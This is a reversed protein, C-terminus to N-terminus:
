NSGQYGNPQLTVGGSEKTYRHPPVQLHSLVGQGKFVRGSGDFFVNTCPDVFGIKWNRPLKMKKAQESLVLQVVCGTTPSVMNFVFFEAQASRVDSHVYRDEKEIAWKGWWEPLDTTKEDPVVYQHFLSAANIQQTTRRYIGIPVGQWEVIKLKGIPLGSVDIELPSNYLWYQASRKEYSPGLSLVFPTSIAIAAVLILCLTVWKLVRRVM